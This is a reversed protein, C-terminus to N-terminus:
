KSPSRPLRSAIRSDRPMSTSAIARSLKACSAASDCPRLDYSKKGAEISAFSLVSAVLQTLRESERTIVRCYKERQEADGRGLLLTEGFLRLLALPTKLEHSVNAVFETKL